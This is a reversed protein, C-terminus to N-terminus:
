FCFCKLINLSIWLNDGIWEKCFSKLEKISASKYNTTNKNM